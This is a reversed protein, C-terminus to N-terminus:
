GNTFDGTNIAYLNLNLAKLYLRTKINGCSASFDDNIDAETTNAVVFSGLEKETQKAKQINNFESQITTLLNAVLTESASM